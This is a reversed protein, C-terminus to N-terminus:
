VMVRYRSVPNGYKHLLYDILRKPSHEMCWFCICSDNKLLRSIRRRNFRKKGHILDYVSRRRFSRRFYSVSCVYGCIACRKKMSATIM